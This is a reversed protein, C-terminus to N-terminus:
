LAKVDGSDSRTPVSSSTSPSASRKLTVWGAGSRTPKATRLKLFDKTSKTERALYLAQGDHKLIAWDPNYTGIPTEIKFWSPLKVFLTIDDREDLRRAFEREVPSDYQM